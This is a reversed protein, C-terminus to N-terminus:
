IRAQSCPSAQHHGSCCIFFCPFAAISVCHLLECMCDVPMPLHIHEAACRLVVTSEGDVVMEITQLQFSPASGLLNDLMNNPGLKTAFMSLEGSTANYFPSSIMLLLAMRQGSALSGHLAVNPVGVAWTFEQLPLWGEPRSCDINVGNGEPNDDRM